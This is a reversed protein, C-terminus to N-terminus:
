FALLISDTVNINNRVSFVISIFIKNYDENRTVKVDEIKIYPLWIQVAEQITGKINADIDQTIPSFVYEHIGCGFNPQMIREGKKTLLLNTLNAKAQTLIDFGQQFYGNSGRKLPLLIGLAKTQAM